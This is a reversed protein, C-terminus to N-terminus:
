PAAPAAASRACRFGRTDDPFGGTFGLRATARLYTVDDFRFDGGRFVHGAMDSTSIPACNACPTGTYPQYVDLTWEWVSGALDLHGWRGAGKSLSGVVPLDAATCGPQGDFLCGFVAYEASPAADGWPYPRQEEGGAAAYEWEAETPLRKGEWVCFAFAEFWTLCSMPRAESVGPADTWTGGCEAIAFSFDDRSAGLANKWAPQWGSNPVLPHEGGGDPPPDGKYNALYARFRGVTVEYRDLQFAAVTVAHAPRENDHGAGAASGAVFTGGPVPLMEACPASVGDVACPLPTVVVALTTHGIQGRGGTEIVELTIAHPGVAAPLFSARVAGPDPQITLYKGQPDQVNWFVSVAAGEPDFSGEASLYVTAGPAPGEAPAATPSYPYDGANAPVKTQFRIRPVPPLDTETDGDAQQGSGDADAPAGADCGGDCARPAPRGGSPGCGSAALLACM